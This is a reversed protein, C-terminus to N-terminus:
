TEASILVMRDQILAGQQQFFRVNEKQKARDKRPVTNLGLVIRGGLNLHTRLDRLFSEWERPSWLSGDPLRDFLIQFGTIVDYKLADAPLLQFSEIRHLLSDIKLLSKVRAYMENDGLDLAKAHHGYFQCVLPFYGAGSGIDLIQLPPSRHLGLARAHWVARTVHTSADLYKSYGPAPSANKYQEVIKSFGRRDIRSVIQLSDQIVDADGHSAQLTDVYSPVFSAKVLLRLNGFHIAGRLITTVTETIKMFGIMM